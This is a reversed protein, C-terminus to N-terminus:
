CKNMNMRETKQNIKKLHKSLVWNDVLIQTDVLKQFESTLLTNQDNEDHMHNDLHLIALPDEEPNDRPSGM